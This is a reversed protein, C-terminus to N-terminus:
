CREGNDDWWLDYDFLVRRVMFIYSTEPVKGGRRLLELLDWFQGHIDGCITVPSAVPQINSEEMLLARVHECLTKMDGEPLHTCTMLQDMWKAPDYPPM